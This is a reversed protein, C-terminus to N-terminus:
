CRERRMHTVDPAGAVSSLHDHSAFKQPAAAFDYEYFVKDGALNLYASRELPDDRAESVFPLVLFRTAALMRAGLAVFEPAYRRRPLEIRVQPPADFMACHKVLRECLRSVKVRVIPDNKPDYTSPNRHFVEIGISMERLAGQDNALSREVLYRLLRLHNPSRRLWDSALLRDLENRILNRTQESM